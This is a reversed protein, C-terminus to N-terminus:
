NFFIGFFVSIKLMNIGILIIINIKWIYDNGSYNIVEKMNKDLFIRHKILMKVILM